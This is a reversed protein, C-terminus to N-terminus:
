RQSWLFLDFKRKRNEVTIEAKELVDDVADNFAKYDGKKYWDDLQTGTLKVGLIKAYKPLYKRVSSDYISYDDKGYVVSNHLCCYKTAFSFMRKKFGRYIEPVVTPDGNKVREDFDPITRINEVIETLFELKKYNFIQTAYLKDLMLVKAAIQYPENNEPFQKLLEHLMPETQKYIKDNVAKEAQETIKENKIELLKEM